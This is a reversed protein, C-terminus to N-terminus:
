EMKILVTKIEFPKVQIPISQGSQWDDSLPTELLNVPIWKAMPYDSQLRASVQQGRCEHVRVTLHDANESRKIADVVIGPHETYILRGLPQLLRGSFLHPPKNVAHGQRIVDSQAAPSQHPYLAYLFRHYGRDAQPDPNQSSKLLSLTMHTGHIGYGYKSDNLLAVGYGNDSLDAWFHGVTEFRAFDWQTNRHVPREAIAYQVDYSAKTSRINVDFGVKLLRRTEHWDVETLFDVRRSKSYFIIQQTVHSNRFPYTMRLVIEQQGQEAVEIQGASLAECKEEYFVDIDWADFNLPRDEYLELVNGLGGERLIERRYEKDYLRTLQGHENWEVRYFPTELTHEDLRVSMTPPDAPPAEEKTWGVEAFAFADVPVWVLCGDATTQSDLPQNNKTLFFCGGPRHPFLIPECLSFPAYNAVVWRNEEERLFREQFSSIMSKLRGWATNYERLSDEYVEHIASGPLIDHFQNRLVTKWVFDLTESPYQGDHKWILSGLWEAFQLRTEMFRNWKKNAAQSTFTGRHLELYLEGDWVPVPSPSAEVNEHLREFFAGATSFRVSPLGPLARLAQGMYLMDRTVGGGGDGYGYSLLLDQSIDKNQFKHWAGTLTRPTIFGNYVTRPCEMQNAMDPDPTTMFYALVESGDPGRWVFLDNPFHNYQNWSIKTTLFTDIGCGALLQPLAWCFGFADPLWLYRCEKGFEERIFRIGHMLQRVLSEGSPINCDSELWMCGDVEWRGQRVREQIRKYLEPMDEKIFAYLQPQTQLFQFDEHEEMLRLVTTFSRVAKERTHRLRWLWAVDIHTHGVCHITVPSQNPHRRLDDELCELAKDATRYFIEKDWDLTLLAHNAMQILWQREPQDDTLYALAKSIAKLYYYLRNTNRHLWALDARRFDHQQEAPPGGGELGSWLIFGM